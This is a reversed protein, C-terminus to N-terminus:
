EWGKFDKNNESVVVSNLKEHVSDWCSCIEDIKDNKPEHKSSCKLFLNTPYKNAVVWPFSNKLSSIALIDSTYKSEGFFYDGNIINNQLIKEKKQWMKKPIYM